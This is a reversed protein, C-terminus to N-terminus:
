LVKLTRPILASLVVTIEERGKYGGEKEVGGGECQGTENGKCHSMEHNVQM